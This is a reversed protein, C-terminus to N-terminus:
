QQTGRTVEVGRRAGRRLGARKRTRAVVADLARILAPGTGRLEKLRQRALKTLVRDGRPTLHVLVNRRDQKGRVRRVLGRKALRDILEVASHHRVQLREALNGITAQQEDPLGRLVLLLLYQQPELGAARAGREALNLFRRIQYRFEALAQYDASSVTHSM